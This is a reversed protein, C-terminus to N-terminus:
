AFSSSRWATGNYIHLRNTSTNYYMSGTKPNLPNGTNTPIMISGSYNTDIDVTFGDKYVTPLFPVVHGIGVTFLSSTNNQANFQGVVTQYSGSSFTCYGEAHSGQGIARTGSGEAHSNDGIAQAFYGEAHSGEGIAQTKSGEAHSSSGSSISSDGEAHSGDGIAQTNIGEAHSGSGYAIPGSLLKGGPYGEAHSYEGIAYTNSGETHSYNGSSTTYLGEAHSYEGIAYTNSGETHSYNGSSTTYLGEAHSANGIAKTVGGEAHSGYGTAKTNVGEAHSYSGSSITQFGEAHSSTGFAKTNQGEAHSYSGSAITNNGQQLSQSALIFTFSSDGGFAGANNFQISSYPSAPTGSGGGGIASSATYTFLGSATDYTIIHGTGGSELAGSVLLSGSIQFESNAAFVLNSRTTDDVGNGIIFSSSTLNHANYQGQVHQNIGLAITGKGEAHSYNGLTYTHDGETHSYSGSITQDGTWNNIGISLNGVIANSTVPTGGVISVQTNTGNFTSSAIEFITKGYINDYNTDDLFLLGSAFLSAVNGYKSDIQVDSKFQASYAQTIGTQTTNGEAHSYEGIAQSGAGEAHSYNGTAQTSLGEAHSAYGVAQTTEGEAHSYSGSAITLQGQELRGNMYVKTGQGNLMWIDSEGGDDNLHLLGGNLASFYLNGSVNTSSIFSGNPFTINGEITQGGIFTNSGTTAFTSTDIPAGGGIAASSTYSITGSASNYVLINTLSSATPLNGINLQSSSGASSIILQPITLGM